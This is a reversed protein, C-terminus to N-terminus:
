AKKDKEQLIWEAIEWDKITDIDWGEFIDVEKIYPNFGIRRKYNKYLDKSFIYLGSTEVLVPSIDQTRPVNSPNYNLPKGNYWSFMQHKYATFASDYENTEIRNIM